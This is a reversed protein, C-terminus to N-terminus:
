ENLELGMANTVKGIAQAFKISRRMLPDEDLWRRQDAEPMQDLLKFRPALMTRLSALANMSTQYNAATTDININAVSIEQIAWKRDAHSM